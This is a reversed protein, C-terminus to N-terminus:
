LRRRRRCLCLWEPYRSPKRWGLRRIRRARAFPFKQIGRSVNYTEGQGSTARVGRVNNHDIASQILGSAKANEIFEAVYALWDPKWKAVALATPNVGYREDLIRYGPHHESYGLLIPRASAIIDARGTNLPAFADDVTPAEVLKACKIIRAVALTPAHN